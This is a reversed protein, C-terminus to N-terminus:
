QSSPGTAPALDVGLTMGATGADTEAAAADNTTLQLAGFGALAARDVLM